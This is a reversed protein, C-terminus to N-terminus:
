CGFVELEGITLYRPVVGGAGSPSVQILTVHTGRAQGCNVDFPGLTPSVDVQQSPQNCPTAHGSSPGVDFYSDGVWVEFPSLWAAYTPNDDRNYIRVYCVSTASALQVSVAASQERTTATLTRIDGDYVNSAGFQPAFTSSLRAGVLTVRSLSSIPPAPAPPSPVTPLTPHTPSVPASPLPPRTPPYTGPPSSPADCETTRSGCDTCDMGHGCLGDYEAGAGGDDCIGDGNFGSCADDCFLCLKPPPHPPHSPPWLPPSVPPSPSPSPPPMSPPSFPPLSPPVPPLPTTRERFVELESITLYRPGGVLRVTVYSAQAASDCRVMFPGKQPPVALPGACRVATGSSSDGFASGLWLEFPSLWAAYALSDDRNTLGIYSVASAAPLRVSLWAGTENRTACLTDYNGDIAASPM